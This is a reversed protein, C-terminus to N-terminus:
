TVRGARSRLLCQEYTTKILCVAREFAAMLVSGPEFVSANEYVIDVASLGSRASM